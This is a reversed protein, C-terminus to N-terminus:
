GKRRSSRRIGVRNCGCCSVALNIVDNNLKDNDLHDVNIGNLGGWDRGTGCWHCPHPGPGIADYLVKRHEAVQGHRDALPHGWQGTLYRHGKMMYCGDAPSGDPKKGM